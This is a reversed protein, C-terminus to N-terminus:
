YDYKEFDNPSKYDLASHMRKTNYYTEIYKLIEQTAELHEVYKKHKQYLLNLFIILKLLSSFSHM